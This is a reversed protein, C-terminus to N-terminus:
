PALLTDKDAITKSVSKILTDGSTLEVTDTYGSKLDSYFLPRDAGFSPEPGAARVLIGKSPELISSSKFEYTNKGAERVKRQATPVAVVLGLLEIPAATDNRLLVYEQGISGHRYFDVVLQKWAADGTEVEPQEPAPDGVGFELLEFMAKQDPNIIQFAAANQEVGVDYWSFDWDLCGPATLAGNCGVLLKVNESKFRLRFRTLHDGNFDFRIVINLDRNSKLAIGRDELGMTQFNITHGDVNVSGHWEKDNDKYFNGFKGTGM